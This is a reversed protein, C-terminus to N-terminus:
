EEPSEDAYYADQPPVYESTPVAWMMTNYNHELILAMRVIDQEKSDGVIEDLLDTFDKNGYLVNMFERYIEWDMKEEYRTMVLLIEFAAKNLVIEVSELMEMFIDLFCYGGIPSSVDNVCDDTFKKRVDMDNKILACLLRAAMLKEDLTGGGLPEVVVQTVIDDPSSFFPSLLKMIYSERAPNIIACALLGMASQRLLVNDKHLPCTLMGYFDHIRLPRLCSELFMNMESCIAPDDTERTIQYMMALTKFIGAYVSAYNERSVEPAVELIQQLLSTKKLNYMFTSPEPHKKLMLPLCVTIWKLADPVISGEMHGLIAYFESRIDQVTDDDVPNVYMVWGYCVKMLREESPFSAALSGIIGMPCDEPHETRDYRTILNIVTNIALNKTYPDEGFENHELRRAIQSVFDKYLLLDAFEDSVFSIYCLLKLIENALEWYIIDYPVESIFHWIRTLFETDIFCRRFFDVAVDKERFSEKTGHFFDNLQKINVVAIDINGESYCETFAACTTEFWACFNEMAAAFFDNLETETVRQKMVGRDTVNMVFELNRLTRSVDISKELIYEDGM